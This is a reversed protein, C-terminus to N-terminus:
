SFKRTNMVRVYKFGSVYESGEWLNLIFNKQLSLWFSYSNKWLTGDEMKSRQGPESYKDRLIEWYTSMVKYLSRASQIAHYM